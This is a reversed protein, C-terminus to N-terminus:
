EPAGETTLSAAKFLLWHQDLDKIRVVHLCREIDHNVVGEDGVLYYVGEAKSVELGPYGTRELLRNAHAVSAIM